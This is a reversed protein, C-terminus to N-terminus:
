RSYHFGSWAVYALFYCPGFGHPSEVAAVAGAVLLVPAVLTVFSHARVIDLSGYARRYTAAYHPGLSLLVLNAALSAAATGHGGVWLAGLVATVILTAGPGLFLFDWAAGLLPPAGTPANDAASADTPRAAMAGVASDAALIVLNYPLGRHAFLPVTADARRGPGVKAWRAGGAAM